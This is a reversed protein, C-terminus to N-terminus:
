KTEDQEELREQTRQPHQRNDLVAVVLVKDDSKDYYITYPFRKSLHMYYGYRKPHIGAYLYLSEIDASIGDVFYDGAGYQQSEYFLAGQLIDEKAEELIEIHV